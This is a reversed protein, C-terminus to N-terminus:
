LERIKNLNENAEKFDEIKFDELFLSTKFFVDSPDQSRSKYEVKNRLLQYSIIYYILSIEGVKIHIYKSFTGEM